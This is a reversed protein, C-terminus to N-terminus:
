FDDFRYVESDAWSAWLPEVIAGSFRYLSVTWVYAHLLQIHQIRYYVFCLTVTTPTRSSAIVVCCVYVVDNSVYYFLKLQKEDVRERANVVLTKQQFEELM